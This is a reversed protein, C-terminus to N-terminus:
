LVMAHKDEKLVNASSVFLIYIEAFPDDNWVYRAYHFMVNLQAKRLDEAFIISFMSNVKGRKPSSGVHINGSGSTYNGQEHSM